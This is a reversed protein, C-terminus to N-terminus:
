LCLAERNQLTERETVSGVFWAHTDARSALSPGLGRGERPSRGGRARGRGNGSRTQQEPCM